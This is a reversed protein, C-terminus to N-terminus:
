SFSKLVNMMRLALQQKETDYVNKSMTHFKKCEVYLKLKKLASTKRASRVPIRALLNVWILDISGKKDINQVIRSCSSYSRNNEHTQVDVPLRTPWVIMSTFCWYVNVPLLLRPFIVCVRVSSSITMKLYDAISFCDLFQQLITCLM